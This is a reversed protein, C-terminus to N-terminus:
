DLAADRGLAAWVNAPVDTSLRWRVTIPEEGEWKLFQVDGCYVFPASPGGARNKQARVFLHVAIGRDGHKSIDQGDRSEQSTRNQSQWQFESPSVFHDKYQFESGHGSKDLTALLFIHGPRKVFGVNWIATSFEFGFLPPIQERSYSRWLQLQGDRRGIPTLHWETGRRSLAVSHRTGSAGADAGFWGRLIRPLQNEEDDPKRIVNVAVKAFHASYKVNEIQLHVWGEPLDSREPESPLFLIPQGGAAHSVKLTSYGARQTGSRDLYEMLRWEALERVLEQLALMIEPDTEFRTSFRGDASAFYSVGGTGKGGVWAAIPNQELLRVLARRDGLAPELDAGVNTTRTALREVEDALEDITISGPFKDANLMAVLVLMKYSKVMETTDLGNIFAGHSDLARSQENTLDDMSAVFSTWSGALERVARPNYGDQYVEVATPRVGHLSKFDQYYRKLADAQGASRRLLSKLIEVTELEYTVECGPPLEQIGARLRELLNLIERDGSPLAFLTQPKLLFIRHNGIYDIVTLREKGPAKRLGRGFQQLWLIKSETPRLMMVTDLTPLDVGENFMDVAFVIDLEGAALQELSPARPASTEGSHVAVARLGRQNFFAAMFDAHRQSVCFGLARQAARKRFQELINEARRQTAVATTLMEEDFRTSRWPINTYDVEDPVGFYHFPALLNKRVGDMLDCRYVLNQQCLALLDGGDSREPTATLGLLFKPRFHAILKRYSAAAAHHFEDVVVYDFTNPSFRALHELRGLTQISAFVVEAHPVKAQGNYLGLPAEPRVRRFTDLAQNLIEERHAVFLVRHFELRNTDFASLWTKGLGTAMVVLGARNGAARTDELAQLAAQQVENPEVPPKALEPITDAAEVIPRQVARRARYREIWEPDLERTSPHNFLVEFATVTEAYGGGERSSVVRYNWEVASTLASASLNSSGVFATGGDAMAFIYAKPHFSRVVPVGLASAQVSGTEFVRREVNGDLDLLRMLANPETIGLYDGTLLRLRAGRALLDRFHEFVRDVGSELAFSVVIDARDTTALQSTIHPLLPDDGGTVLRHGAAAELGHTALLYNGRSPIVHRVGGRPDLVDGAYRPIVHLHLHPVTQGAAAGVNVGINFGDPPPRQVIARRVAEVGETLALRENPTADFWSTVHRRTVLLAHGDSVPFADWLGFVLDSEFFIRGPDANCFPCSSDSM